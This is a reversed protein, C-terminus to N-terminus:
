LSDIWPSIRLPTPEERNLHLFGTPRLKVGVGGCKHTLFVFDQGTSDEPLISTKLAM